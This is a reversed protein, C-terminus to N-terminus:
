KLARNMALLEELSCAKWTKKDDQLAFAVNQDIYIAVTGFLFIPKGDVTTTSGLTKPQFVMNQTKAHEQLVDQFSAAHPMENPMSMKFEFRQKDIPKPNTAEEALRRELVQSYSVSEPSPPCLQDLLMDRNSDLAAQIMLLGAFLHTCLVEDSELLSQSIMSKWGLYFQAVEEMDAKGSCLWVHLANEWKLLFEGELLALTHTLSLWGDDYCTMVQSFLTLDQNSPNIPTKHLRMALHPAVIQAMTTQLNLRAEKVDKWPQLATLVLALDLMKSSACTNLWSKLKRTIDGTLIKTMSPDMFALWREVLMENLFTPNNRPKWSSITRHLSPFLIDQIWNLLVADAGVAKRERNFSPLVQFDDTEMANHIEDEQDGSSDVQSFATQCALFLTLAARSQEPTWTISQFSRRIKPLVLKTMIKWLSPGLPFFPVWVKIFDTVRQPQKLPDWDALMRQMIPSVLAVILIESDFYNDKSKFKSRFDELKKLMSKVPKSSISLRAVNSNLIVAVDRELDSAEQLMAELRNEQATVSDVQSQLYRLETQTAMLKAENVTINHRSTHIKAELNNLITSIGYLLEDGLKPPGAFNTRHQPGRMDVVVDAVDDKHSDAKILEEISIIKPAEKKPKDKFQGARRRKHWASQKLLSETTPLLSSYKEEEQVKKKGNAEKAVKTPDKGQMEAELIKNSLLQTAEKFNGYGLGLNTPRVVVEITRSVGGKNTEDASEQARKRRKSGLGGTGDYGWKMMLKMGIGKTHKEWKAINNKIPQPPRVPEVTGFSTPLGSEKMTAAQFQMEERQNNDNEIGSTFGLGHGGRVKHIIKEPQVDKSPEKQRGRAVLKQFDDNTKKIAEEDSEIKEDQQQQQQQKPTETETPGSSASVFEMPGSGKRIPIRKRRKTRRKGDNEDESSSAHAFVGYIEDDANRPKRKGYGTENESDHEDSSPYNNDDIYGDDIDVESSDGGHDM